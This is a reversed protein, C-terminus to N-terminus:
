ESACMAMQGVVRPNGEDVSGERYRKALGEEVGDLHRCCLVTVVVSPILYDGGIAMVMLWDLVVM